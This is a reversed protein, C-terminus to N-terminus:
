LVTGPLALDSNKHSVISVVLGAHSLPSSYRLERPILYKSDHLIKPILGFDETIASM